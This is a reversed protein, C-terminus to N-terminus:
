KNFDCDSLEFIVVDLSHNQEGLQGSSTNTRNLFKNTHSPILNHYHKTHVLLLTLSYRASQHEETKFM